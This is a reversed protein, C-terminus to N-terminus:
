RPVGGPRSLVVWTGKAGDWRTMVAAQEGIGRQPVGPFNYIGDIGIWSRQRDLYAKVDAATATPPLARLASVVLMAVDWSLGPQVDPKIKAEDFAHFFTDINDKLPGRGIEARDFYRFGVFYLGRAEYAGLQGMQEYSMNGTSTAVPVNLGVDNLGRLITSFAPGTTWAFVADPAATKMRAAQASVSVDTVNFHENAVRVVGKNEPINAAYDFAREADLGSADTSTILAIRSMGKLRFYRMAVALIDNTSMGASYAYSGPEPHLAPSFCYSVVSTKLIPTVAGCTSAISPGLFIPVHKGILDNAIQVTNQPVTQDDIVQFQVPRGHIGGSRNVVGEVVRLTRQVGTGVFAGNGTLSAIVNITYPPASQAGATPAVLAVAAITAAGLLRRMM